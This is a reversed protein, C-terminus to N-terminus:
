SEQTKFPASENATLAALIQQAFELPAYAIIGGAEESVVGHMRHPTGSLTDIVDVVNDEDLDQIWFQSSTPRDSTREPSGHQEAIRRVDADTADILEEVVPDNDRLFTLGEADGYNGDQALYIWGPTENEAM